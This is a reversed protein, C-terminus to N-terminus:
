GQAALMELFAQVRTRIQGAAPTQETELHLFPVGITELAPRVLVYDFAHPDCFKPLVFIVGDAEAEEVKHRLYAGRPMETHYKSPCPPRSLLRDTLAAIPDSDEAVRGAFSRTGTCLDDDAVRAGLEDLITLLTADDLVAGVLVVRPSGTRSPANELNVVLEALLPVFLEPPMKAGADVVSYFEMATLRDRLAHLRDLLRRKENYLAISAQLTEDNIPRGSHKALSTRFRALEAVLYSHAKPSTLNTPVMITEVWGSGPETNITWLDALAQMTDCTHAFVMGALCHLERRLLQDLASRGLACTYSQLHADAHTPVQPTTRIRVPVFGAAHIIEEPVYTCTYGIARHDPYSEPWATLPAKAAALLRNFPSGEVVM